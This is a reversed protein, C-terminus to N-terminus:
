EETFHKNASLEYFQPIHDSLNIKFTIRDYKSQEQRNSKGILGYLFNM